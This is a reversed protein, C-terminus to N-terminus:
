RLPHRHDRTHRFDFAPLVEEIVFRIALRTLSSAASIAVAIGHQKAQVYKLARLFILVGFAAFYGCVGINAVLDDRPFLEEAGILLSIAPLFPPIM